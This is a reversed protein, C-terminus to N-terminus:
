IILTMKEPYLVTLNVGLGVGVIVQYGFLAGVPTETGLTSLLGVGVTAIVTGVIMFPTCYGVMSVLIGGLTSSIALTIVLPLTYVASTTASSGKIAQFYLPLYFTLIVFSGFLFFGYVASFFVTRVTILRVPITAREGLRYQSCMWLSLLIGAGSLLGIIVPSKWPTTIGGWQLALLLCVIGPIFFVPGIYDFEMIQEKFRLKTKPHQVPPQM